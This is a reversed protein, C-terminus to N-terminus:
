NSVEQVTEFMEPHHQKLAILEQAVRDFETIAQDTIEAGARFGSDLFEYQMLLRQLRAKRPQGSLTIVDLHM